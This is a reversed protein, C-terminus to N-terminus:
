GPASTRPRLYRWCLLTPRTSPGAARIMVTTMWPVFLKGLEGEDDAGLGIVLALSANLAEEPRQGEVLSAVLAAVLAGSARAVQSPHTLAAETWANLAAARSERAKVGHAGARMVAGNGQATPKEPPFQADPNRRLYELAERTQNGVDKPDTALWRLMADRVRWLDLEGEAYGELVAKTLATDDTTEGPRLSLWGGGVMELPGRPTEGPGSFEYPGGLADGVALGLLTGARRDDNERSM